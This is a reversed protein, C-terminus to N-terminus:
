FRWAATTFGDPPDPTFRLEETVLGSGYPVNSQVINLTGDEHVATVLMTHVGSVWQDPFTLHEYQLIDGPMVNELPVRTAGRYNAVPSGSGTWDAGAGTLWRRASIICEGPQSWGTARSTGVENLASQIAADVDFGHTMVTPDFTAGVTVPALSDNSLEVNATILSQQSVTGHASYTGTSSATTVAAAAPSAGFSYTLMAVVSM